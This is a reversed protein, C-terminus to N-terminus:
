QMQTQCTRFDVIPVQIKRLFSSFSVEQFAQKGWGTVICQDVIYSDTTNPVCALGIHPQSIDADEALIMLAVDNCLDAARYNPHIITKTVLIDKSPFPESTISADFEGVRAKLDAVNSSDICHAATLVVRVDILSGGCLFLDGDFTTELIAVMWPFEGLVAPSASTIRTALTGLGSGIPNRFGCGTPAVPQTLPFICCVNDPSCAHRPNIIGEGQNITDRPRCLNTAVCTCNDVATPGDIGGIIQRQRDTVADSAGWINRRSSSTITTVDKLYSEPIKKRSNSSGWNRVIKQTPKINSAGWNRSGEALSEAILLFLFLPLIGVM